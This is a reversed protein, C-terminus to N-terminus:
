FRGVLDPGNGLGAPAHRTSALLLRPNETGGAALVVAGAEVDFGTGALTRARVREVRTGDADTELETCTANLLVQVSESAKLADAHIAGFDTPWGFRFRVTTLGSGPAPRLFGEGEIDRDPLSGVAEARSYWPEM